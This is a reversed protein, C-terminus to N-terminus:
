KKMLKLYTHKGEYTVRCIYINSEQNEPTWFYQNDGALAKGKYL